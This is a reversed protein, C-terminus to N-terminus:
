SHEFDIAQQIDDKAPESRYRRGDPARRNLRNLTPILMVDLSRRSQIPTPGCSRGSITEPNCHIPMKHKDLLYLPLIVTIQFLTALGSVMVDTHMETSIRPVASTGRRNGSFSDDRATQKDSADM